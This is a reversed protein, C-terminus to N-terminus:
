YPSFALLASEVAIPKAADQHAAAASPPPTTAVTNCTRTHNTPTSRPERKTPANRTSPRRVSDRDSGANPEEGRNARSRVQTSAENRTIDELVSAM